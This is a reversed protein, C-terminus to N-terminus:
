QSLSIVIYGNQSLFEFKYATGGSYNQTSNFPFRTIQSIQSGDNTTLMVEGGDGLARFHLTKVQEPLTLEFKLASGEGMSGLSNAIYTFKSLILHSQSAKMDVDMENTKHSVILILPIFLLMVFGVIILLEM